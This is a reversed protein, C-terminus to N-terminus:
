PAGMAFCDAPLLLFFVEEELDLDEPRPLAEAFFFDLVVRGTAFFLLPVFRPLELLVAREL